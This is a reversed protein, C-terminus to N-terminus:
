STSGRRGRKGYGPIPPLYGEMIARGTTGRSKEADQRLKGRLPKNKGWGNQAAVSVDSGNSNLGDCYERIGKKRPSGVKDREHNGM